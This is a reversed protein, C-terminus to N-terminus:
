KKLPFDQYWYANEWVAWDFLHQNSTSVVVRLFSKFKILWLKIHFVGYGKNKKCPLIITLNDYGYYKELVKTEKENESHNIIYIPAKTSEM